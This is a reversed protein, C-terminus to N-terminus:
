IRPTLSALPDIFAILRPGESIWHLGTRSTLRHSVISPIFYCNTPNSCPPSLSLTTVAQVNILDATTYHNTNGGTVRFVRTWNGAASNQQRKQTHIRGSAFPKRYMPSDNYQTYDPCFRHVAAWSLDEGPRDIVALSWRLPSSAVM